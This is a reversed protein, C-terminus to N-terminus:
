LISYKLISVWFKTSILKSESLRGFVHNNSLNVFVQKFGLDFLALKHNIIQNMDMTNLFFFFFKNRKSIGYVTSMM